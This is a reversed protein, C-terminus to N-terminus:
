RRARAGARPGCADGTRGQLYFTRALGLALHPQADRPPNEIALVTEADDFEGAMTYAEARRFRRALWGVAAAAAQAFRLALRHRREM